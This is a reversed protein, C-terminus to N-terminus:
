RMQKDYVNKIVAAFEARTIPAKPRFTGDRYGNMLGEGHITEIATYAWYHESVDHFRSQRTTPAETYFGANFLIQAMQERTVFSNPSFRETATGNMLGNQAAITIPHRAWHEQIVDQFTVNTNSPSLTLFNVFVTATEARTISQNPRFTGNEYGNMWGQEAVFRIADEAWHGKIDRLPERSDYQYLDWQDMVRGVMRRYYDGGLHNYGANAVDFVFQKSAADTGWGDRMRQQYRELASGYRNNVLLNGALFYVADEYSHFTRYWNDRRQTEDFIIRDRGLNAIVPITREYDEDPQGVLQWANTSNGNWVKIGFINNAHHAIRTTGYGSEIIAMGIIASAPVGWKEQAQVAYEAIENVFAEQERQTPTSRSPLYANSNRGNVRDEQPVPSFSSAFISSSNLFFIIALTTVVLIFLYSKRLAEM